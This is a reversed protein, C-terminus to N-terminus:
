TKRSFPDEWALSRVQTEQMEQKAPPSKAESGGPFGMSTSPIHFQIGCITTIITM